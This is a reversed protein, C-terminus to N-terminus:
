HGGHAAHTLLPRLAIWLALACWLAGAVAPTPRWRVRETVLLNAALAPLTALSFVLMVLAGSVPNGTSAALAWAGALFGCPLAGTALGLALGRRPVLRALMQGFQSPPKRLRVRDSRPLMLRVGKILAPVAVMLLVGDQVAGIPLRHQAHEGLSGLLAGAFTYVFARGAFYGLTGHRHACGALTLPGCMLACHFSGLLGFVFVTVLM